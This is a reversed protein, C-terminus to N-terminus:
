FLQPPGRAAHVTPPESPLDPAALVAHILRGETILAVLERRGGCLGCELVDVAFVRELLEAWPFRRKPHEAGSESPQRVGEAGVM